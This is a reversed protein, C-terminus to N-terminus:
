LTKFEYGHDRFYKIIGPLADATTGKANTDHLLVIVNNRDGWITNITSDMIFKASSGSASISDQGSSTWDYYKHGAGTVANKLAASKQHSGGPFRFVKNGYAFGLARDIAANGSNLDNMLNTTNKYMHSYNHSYGHNAIKHGEQYARRVIDPNRDVQSGLVFFTAPVGNDRLTNLIRPTVKNSPGDDFTLYVTKKQKPGVSYDAMSAEYEEVTFINKEM